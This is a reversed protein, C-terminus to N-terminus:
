SRKSAALQYFFSGFMDPNTLPMLLVAYAVLGGLFLAFLKRKEAPPSSNIWSLDPFGM